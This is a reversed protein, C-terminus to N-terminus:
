DLFLTVLTVCLNLDETKNFERAVKQRSITVIYQCCNKWSCVHQNVILWSNVTSKNVSKYFNKICLNVINELPQHWIVAGYTVYMNWPLYFHIYVCICQFLLSLDTSSYCLHWKFAFWKWYIFTRVTRM